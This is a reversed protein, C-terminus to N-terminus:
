AVAEVGVSSMAAFGISGFGVSVMLVLPAWQEFVLLEFM